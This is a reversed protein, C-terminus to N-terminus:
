FSTSTRSALLTTQSNIVKSDERSIWSIKLRCTQAQPNILVIYNKYELYNIISAWIIRQSIKNNLNPINFIAPINTIIYYQSEKHSILLEDNIKKLIEKINDHILKKQLNSHRLKNADVLINSLKNDLNM